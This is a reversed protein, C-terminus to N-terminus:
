RDEKMARHIKELLYRETNNVRMGDIVGRWSMVDRLNGQKYADALAKQATEMDVM